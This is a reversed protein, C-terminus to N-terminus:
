QEKDVVYLNECKQQATILADVAKTRISIEEPTYPPEGLISIANETAHFLTYYMKQYDAM